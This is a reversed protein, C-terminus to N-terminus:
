SLDISTLMCDDKNLFPRTSRWNAWIRLAVAPIICIVALIHAVLNVTHLVDRPHEFDPVVGPPSPTAGQIIIGASM